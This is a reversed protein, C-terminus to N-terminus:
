AAEKVEVRIAERIAGRSRIRSKFEGMPPRTIEIQAANPPLVNLTEMYEQQCPQLTGIVQASRTDMAEQYDEFNSDRIAYMDALRM